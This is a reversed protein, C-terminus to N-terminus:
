PHDCAFLRQVDAFEAVGPQTSCGLFTARNEIRSRAGTRSPPVTTSAKRFVTSRAWCASLHPKVRNQSASCWLMGPIELAAVDTSMPWTATLVEVM